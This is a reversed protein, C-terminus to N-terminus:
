HIPKKPKGTVFLNEADKQNKQDLDKLDPDNKKLWDNAMEDLEPNSKDVKLHIEQKGVEMKTWIYPIDELAALTGSLMQKIRVSKGDEFIYSFVSGIADVSAGLLQEATPASAKPDFDSSAYATTAALQDGTFLSIALVIENSYIIGYAKFQPQSKPELKKIAKLGLEFNSSFVDSTMKLYDVPLPSGLIPHNNRFEM